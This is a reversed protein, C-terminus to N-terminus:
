KRGFDAPTEGWDETKWKLVQHPELDKLAGEARNIMEFLMTNSSLRALKTNCKKAGVWTIATESDSYIPWDIKHKTLYDMARVIALFEGVNNTGDAFPGAKFIRKGNETEVGQYELIGPSGSCAADVCLSPLIPRVKATKWKGITSPKGAYHVYDVKFAAEAEKRTEFSKFRAGIFGKVQIECEPWTTFIGKKRGRWVVYYKQKEM